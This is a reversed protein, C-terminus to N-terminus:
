IDEKTTDPQNQDYHDKCEKCMERRVFIIQYKDPDCYKCKNDKM